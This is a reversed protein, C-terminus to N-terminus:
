ALGVVAAVVRVVRLLPKSGWGSWADSIIEVRCFSSCEQLICDATYGISCSGNKSAINIKICHIPVSYVIEHVRYAGWHLSHRIEAFEFIKRTGKVKFVKKWRNQSKELIKEIHHSEIVFFTGYLFTHWHLDNENSQYLNTTQSASKPFKLFADHMFCSAANVPWFADYSMWLVHAVARIHFNTHKHIHTYKPHLTLPRTSHKCLLCLNQDDGWFQLPRQSPPLTLSLLYVSIYTYISLSRIFRNLCVDLM